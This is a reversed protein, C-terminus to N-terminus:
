HSAYTDSCGRTEASKIRGHIRIYKGRRGCPCDDEGVIEGLDDTLISHGPYSSPLLSVLQVPGIERMPRVSFDDDRIIVDSFISSHLYGKECEMFLSGGQEVMGYYNHIRRISCQNRLGERFTENDVAQAILKKWGGGHILTANELNLHENRDRLSKYFHEWVMFTFGFLLIPENRYKEIFGKVVDLNIQMQENLAYEVNSGFVSFALIGAGRASFERRDKVVSKSDIVLLPLGRKGIFHSVIKILVKTQLTADARDLFIRSANRGTSGSSTMTKVIQARDVSLMDHHKFLQVPIFPVKEPANRTEPDVRLANLIKRYPPCHAYHHRTLAHLRETFLARKEERALSYPPTDLIENPDFM